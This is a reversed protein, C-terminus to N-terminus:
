PFPYRFSVAMKKGNIKVATKEGLTDYFTKFAAFQADELFVSYADGRKVTTGSKLDPLERPWDVNNPAYDYDWFMVEMRKPQWVTAAPHSFSALKNYVRMFAPPPETDTVGIRRRLNGYVHVQKPRKINVSLSNTPQDSASSVRIVEPLGYFEDAPDLSEILQKMSAPDLKVQYVTVRRDETRKYIVHGHEYLVFTPTDSGIVMLSPNREVLIILARGYKADGNQAVANGFFLLFLLTFPFARQMVDDQFLLSM